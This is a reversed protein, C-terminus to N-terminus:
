CKNFCIYNNDIHVTYDKSMSLKVNKHYNQLISDIIKFKLILHYKHSIKLLLNKLIYKEQIIKEKKIKINGNCVETKNILDKILYENIIINLEDSEKGLRLLNDKYKDTYCDSCMPFINRRMKGRCSWDPTTDLFYPIQFKHAFDYILDKRVNLMPRYINVNLIENKYKLVTLDTLERNGRMLNNFINEVLDDEHHALFVGDLEYKINLQRYFDYRYNKSQKEYEERKLDGRRFDLNIHQLDYTFQTCFQILFDKEQNSEERNNYNIHCLVIKLDHLKNLKIHHIIEFLVMSDVGGSLSILVNSLNNYTIFDFIVNYLQEDIFDKTVNNTNPIYQLIDEFSKFLDM